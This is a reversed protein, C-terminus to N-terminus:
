DPAWCLGYTQGAAWQEATPWEYGWTFNSRTTPRTAPRRGRVRESATTASRRWAPTPAAASPSRRSRGGAHARSSCIVRAFDPSGPEATGCMGYRAAARGADLVGACAAPRAAGAREDGALAVVDCRYWGAGADSEEVTPTFWVARLM